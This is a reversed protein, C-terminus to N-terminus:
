RDRDKCEYKDDKHNSSRQRSSGSRLPLSRWRGFHQQQSNGDNNYDDDACNCVDDLGGTLPANVDNPHYLQVM